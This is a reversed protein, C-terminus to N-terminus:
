SKGNMQEDVVFFKENIVFFLIAQRRFVLFVVFNGKLFVERHRFEAQDFGKIFPPM